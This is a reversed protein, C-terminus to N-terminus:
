PILKSVEDSLPSEGGVADISTVAFYYLKGPALGTIMYSGISGSKVGSGPAQLYTRPSLGYYVRYGV